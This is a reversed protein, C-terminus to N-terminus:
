INDDVILTLASRLKHNHIVNAGLTLAGKHSSADNIFKGTWNVTTVTIIEFSAAVYAVGLARETFAETIVNLSSRNMFMKNLFMTIVNSPLLNNIVSSNSKCFVIDM